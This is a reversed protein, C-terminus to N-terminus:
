EATTKAPYTFTITEAQAGGGRRFMFGQGAPIIISKATETSGQKCYAANATRYWYKIWGKTSDYTWIQDANGGFSPWAKAGKTQYLPLTAANFDVPWPYGIFRSSNAAIGEYVAQGNFPRVAGSLTITTVAAGGGRRFMLTDGAKVTDETAVTEGQKVWNASATRWWYKVWGATADYRWIQDANGGFSPWAKHNAVTFLDVLKTEEKGSVPDFQVSLAM